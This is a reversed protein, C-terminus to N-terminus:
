PIAIGYPDRISWFLDSQRDSNNVEIYTNYADREYPTGARSTFIVQTFGARISQQQELPRLRNVLTDLNKRFTMDFYWGRSTVLKTIQKAIEPVAFAAVILPGIIPIARGLDKFLNTAMKVFKAQPNALFEMADKVFPMGRKGGPPGAGQQMFKGYAKVHANKQGSMRAQQNNIKGVNKGLEVDIAAVLGPDDEATFIDNIWGDRASTVQASFMMNEVMARVKEGLSM